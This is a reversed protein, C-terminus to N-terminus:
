RKRYIPSFDFIRTFHHRHKMVPAESEGLVLYGNGALANYLRTFIIEQYEVTYYILLNRCLVLDFNGFVSEPPVGHRKDLMDYRTFSVQNKIEPCLCFSTGASTEKPTFYTMLLRYKMTEVSALPYVAQSADDLAGSDIDTAFIHLTTSPAEKQLLEHILIALSYPEEGRACGASWVRLSHDKLNGKEQIIAPLIRDALLEFTLTDRFFRSVNITLVDLLRDLEATNTKLCSLYDAVDNCATAALRQAIRRELMPQHCGSFDFGRKENLYDLIIALTDAM